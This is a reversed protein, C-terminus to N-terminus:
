GVHSSTQSVVNILYIGILILLIGAARAWDLTENWLVIGVVVTLVLGVGSWIAYAVGIPMSKLVLALLYFSLGYGVTVIVSPILKTFGESFKLATTGVVESLIALFLIIYTNM